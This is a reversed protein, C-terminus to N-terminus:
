FDIIVTPNFGCTNTDFAVTKSSKRRGITVTATVTYSGPALMLPSDITGYEKHFAFPQCATGVQPSWTQLALNLSTDVTDVIKRNRNATLRQIQIRDVLPRPSAPWACWCAPAPGCGKM